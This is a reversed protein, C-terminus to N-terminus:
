CIFILEFFDDWKQFEEPESLDGISFTTEYDDRM